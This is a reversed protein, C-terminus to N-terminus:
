VSVVASGSQQGHGKLNHLQYKDKTRKRGWWTTLRPKPLPRAGSPFHGFTEVAQRRDIVANFGDPKFTTLYRLISHYGKNFGGCTDDWFDFKPINSFFSSSPIGGLHKLGNDPNSLPHRPMKLYLGDIHGNGHIVKLRSNLGLLGQQFEKATM